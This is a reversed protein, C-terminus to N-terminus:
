LVKLHFVRPLPKLVPFRMPITFLYKPKETKIPKLLLIGTFLRDLIPEIKLSKHKKMIQVIFSDPVTIILKNNITHWQKYEGIQFICYHGEPFGTAGSGGLLNFSIPVTYWVAVSKGRQQGPKWKPLSRVVRMAENDLIPDVGRAMSVKEVEGKETVVFRVYVKGEICYERAIEPYTVNAAIYKRLNLEGGPFEPMKEVIIFIAEEEVEEEKISIFNISENEDVESNFELVNEEIAVADDVINLVEINKPSPLLERNNKSKSNLGETKKYSLQKALKGIQKDDMVNESVIQNENSNQSELVIKGISNSSIKVQKIKYLDHTINILNHEKLKPITFTGYSNTRTKVPAGLYTILANNVPSGNKDVITGGLYDPLVFYNCYDNVIVDTKYGKLDLSRFTLGNDLKLNDFVFFGDNDTFVSDNTEVVLVKHNKFPRGGHDVLRGKIQAKEAAYKVESSYNWVFKRWGQTMLLYDLAQDAKPENTKFYFQPEEIKGKVQSSLLLYSLIHNQKDDAFTIMNNNVVSLALDSSVTNGQYDTTKIDMIVQERPLYKEKNTTISVNMTRDKNVFVLRECQETNSKDYLTIQLIGAPMDETSIELTNIGEKAKVMKSFYIKGEIQAKLYIKSKVPTFFSAKLRHDDIKSVSLTYTSSDAGPLEFRAKLSNPKDIIAHYKTGNLPKLNFAGMGDHFSKFSTILQNEEDLIRGEIDSPNGYSDLAKFAIRSNVGVMLNGGEPFFSLSIGKLTIPITRSISEMREQYDITVNLTGDPSDLKGPLTFNILAKGEKDTIISNKKYSKGNLLVEFKLKQNSLPENELTKIDLEATAEQGAGY